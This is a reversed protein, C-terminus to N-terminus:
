VVAVAAMPARTTAGGVTVATDGLEPVVAPPVDTVTAPVLRAPVEATVKPAVGPVLTATFGDPVDSVTVEGGSDAAMTSMVTVM